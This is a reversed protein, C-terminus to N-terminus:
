LFCRVTPYEKIEKYVRSLIRNRSISNTYLNCARIMDFSQCQVNIVKMVFVQKIFNAVDEETFDNDEFYGLVHSQDSVVIEDLVESPLQDEIPISM